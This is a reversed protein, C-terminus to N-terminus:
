GAVRGLVGEFVGLAEDVQAASVVLPPIWRVVNNYTGCSLLLLGAEAAAQVAAKAAKEDPAGPRGFETAAMLGLGRVEGIM